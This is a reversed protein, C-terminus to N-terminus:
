TVETTDSETCGWLCCGVLSGRGQSEGPLFVPTPQWKRRWYWQSSNPTFSDSVHSNLKGELPSITPFLLQWAPPNSSELTFETSFSWNVSLHFLRGHHGRELKPPCMSLQYNFSGKNNVLHHISQSESGVGKQLGWGGCGGGFWLTPTVM